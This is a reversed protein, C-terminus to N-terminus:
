IWLAKLGNLEDYDEDAADPHDSKNDAKGAAQIENEDPKIFNDDNM